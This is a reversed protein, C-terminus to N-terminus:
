ERMFTIVEQGEQLGSLIEIEGKENKIGTKVELQKIEEGQVVRVMKKEQKYIISRYPIHLVNEKRQTEISIDTSMGTKVRQDIEDFVVKVKYYVIGEIMTEAPEIEVVQGPWSEEPFADLSINVPNGVKVKGIDAEPVDVKIEFKSSSILSIVADGGATVVEGIKINIKAVTGSFPATLTADNLKQQLEVMSAKAKDVKAQYVAIDVARPPAKLEALNEQAEELTNKAANINKQNAVKQDAVAQKAILTNTIATNIAIRGTEINDQDTDWQSQSYDSHIIILDVLEGASDLADRITRLYSLFPEFSNDIKQDSSDARIEAILNKLNKFALDAKEKKDKTDTKAQISRFTLDDRYEKYLTNEDFLTKLKKMAKDANFYANNFTDLADDYAKDIDNEAQAKIDTLNTQATEVEQEAVQIAEPTAGAQYQELEAKAQNYSAQVQLLQSYLKSTYLKVLKAGQKVKDGESVYIEEITGNTEFRLNVEQVPKVTGTASVQEVIEGRQVITSDYSSEKKEKFLFVALIILIIISIGIVAKKNKVIKKIM